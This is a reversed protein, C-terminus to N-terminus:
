ASRDAALRRAMARWTPMQGTGGVRELFQDDLLPPASPDEDQDVENVLGDAVHVAALIGFSSTPVRTPHHHNAVAEIIPYPLGWLGLLYGGIEAHTVGLIRQEAVHAPCQEARMEQDVQAMQAPLEVALVLKGIDHLLGAVAADERPGKSQNLLHAAVNSVLMAHRETLETGPHARVRASGFVESALVVQKITELGLFAVAEEVKSITRSIRFYASNVLQLVKACVAIDQNIIHAVDALSTSEDHVTAVLRSYTRPLAPLDRIGGIARKISDDGVLRQLSRAREVVDEIVGAECPKGLFQHSVPVARLSSELDSHGSLVIRVVSPYKEQVHRLLTAGDMEPMRMDSVIVDVPSKELHALAEHGSGVFVMDWSRRQRHLRARLGELINPEDDVFMIRTTM